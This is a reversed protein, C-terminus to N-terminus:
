YSAVDKAGQFGVDGRPAFLVIGGIVAATVAMAGAMKALPLPRRDLVLRALAYGAVFAVGVVTPVLHTGAAVGFLGGAIFAPRRGQQWDPARLAKVAFILATFMVLRGWNEAHYRNLDSTLERSLIWNNAFLAIAMLPATWRLGLERGLAWATIIIGVSVMFLLAGMPGFPGRGLILSMAANFTNLV